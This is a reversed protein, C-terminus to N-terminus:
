LTKKLSELRERNKKHQEEITELYETLATRANVKTQPYAPFATITLERLKATEIQRLWVNGELPTWTSVADYFAFSMSTVVGSSVLELTDKADTTNPLASTRFHVGVSDEWVDMNVGTRALTRATDHNYLLYIEPRTAFFQTFANPLFEEYFDFLLVSRKNYPVALGELTRTELNARLEVSFCARNNDTM